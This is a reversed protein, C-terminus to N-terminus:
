ESSKSEVDALHIGYLSVQPNRGWPEKYYWLDVSDLTRGDSLEFVRNKEEPSIRGSVVFEESTGNAFHFILRDFFIPEGTVRLQINRFSQSRRLIQIREHSHNRDIEAHGLFDWVQGRAFSSTALALICTTFLWCRRKM